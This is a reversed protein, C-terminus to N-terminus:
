FSKYYTISTLFSLEYFNFRILFLNLCKLGLAEVSPIHKGLLIHHRILIWWTAILFIQLNAFKKKRIVCKEM